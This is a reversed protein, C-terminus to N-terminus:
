GLPLWVHRCNWGGGNTWVPLGQGNDMEDIQGRTYTNDVHEACFPRNRLDKPGVYKFREAGMNEGTVYWLERAQNHMATQAYTYAHAAMVELQEIMAQALADSSIPSVTAASLRDRLWNLVGDSVTAEWGDLKAQLAMQLATAEGPTYKLANQGMAKTYDEMAADFEQAIDYLGSRELEAQVQASLDALNEYAWDDRAGILNSLRAQLARVASALRSEVASERAVSINELEEAIEALTPL